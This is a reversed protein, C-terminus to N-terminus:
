LEFFRQPDGPDLLVVKDFTHNLRVEARFANRDFEDFGHAILDVFVLWWAPYRHRYPAIKETKEAIAHTLNETVESIVWGGSQADSYGGLVFCDEHSKSAAFVSLEFEPLLRKEFPIPNAMFTKLERVILPEIVKWKPLPRSFRYFVFWSHDHVPPGLTPLLREVRQLLPAEAEALGRRVKGDYWSQSLRRVEVAVNSDCLFDPPINGDPEHVVKSFGCSKLYQEAIQEARDM